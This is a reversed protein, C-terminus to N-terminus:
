LHKKIIHHAVELTVQNLLEFVNDFDNQSGYYPDPIIHGQQSTSLDTLLKVKHSYAPYSLLIDSFNQHDMVLVYDFKDLDEKCLQRAKHTLQIGQKSATDLMRKDALQGRHWDGTGCSDVYFQEHVGLKKLHYLFLGEAMPSRCINGLCVFLINM